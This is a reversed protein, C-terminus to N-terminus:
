SQVEPLGAAPLVRFVLSPARKRHIAAAVEGRLWGGARALAAEAAALDFEGGTLPALLVLLQSADPAPGVEVVHLAQLESDAAEGLVQQLTQSVQECLQRTKRGASHSSDDKKFFERPDHGDDADAAARFESLRDNMRYPRKM